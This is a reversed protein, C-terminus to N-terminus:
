ILEVTDRDKLKEFHSVYAALANAKLYDDAGLFMIWDGTSQKLGKNWADYIGEDPESIWFTICNSYRRILEVTGDKSNGDIVIVEIDHYNEIAECAISRLLREFYKEANYTAVIISLKM